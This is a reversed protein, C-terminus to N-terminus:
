QLHLLRFLEELLVGSLVAVALLTFLIYALSRNKGDERVPSVISDGLLLRFRISDGVAYERTDGSDKPLQLSITEGDIEYETRLITQKGIQRIERITGSIPEARLNSRFLVVILVIFALANIMMGALRIAGILRREPLTFWGVDTRVFCDTLMLTFFFPLYVCIVPILEASQMACRVAGEAPYGSQYHVKRKDGVKVSCDPTVDSDPKFKTQYTKGNVEYQVYATFQYIEKSVPKSRVDTVTGEAVSDAHILRKRRRVFRVIMWILLLLFLLPLLFVLFVRIRM